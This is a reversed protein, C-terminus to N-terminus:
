FGATLIWPCFGGYTNETVEYQSDTLNSVVLSHIKNITIITKGGYFYIYSGMEWGGLPSFKSFLSFYCWLPFFRTSDFCRRFPATSPMSMCTRTGPAGAQHPTARSLLSLSVLAWPGHLSLQWSQGAPLGLPFEVSALSRATQVPWRPCRAHWLLILGKERGM